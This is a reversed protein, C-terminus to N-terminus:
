SSAYRRVCRGRPRQLILGYSYEDAADSKSVVRIAYITAAVLEGEERLRELKADTRGAAFLNGLADGVIDGLIGM